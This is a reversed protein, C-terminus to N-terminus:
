AFDAFKVRRLSQVVKPRRQGAIARRFQTTARERPHVSV